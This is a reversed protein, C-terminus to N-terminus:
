LHTHCPWVWCALANAISKLMYDNRDYEDGDAAGSLVIELSKRYNLSIQSMRVCGWADAVPFDMCLVAAALPVLELCSYM